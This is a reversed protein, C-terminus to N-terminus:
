NWEPILVNTLKWAMGYRRMVIQVENGFDNPVWVTVSDLSEHVVRAESLLNRRLNEVPSGSEDMPRGGAVLRSIGSPTVLSDLTEDIMKSALGAAFAAIPNKELEDGAEGVLMAGLQGKINQRLLPFDVRRAIDESDGTELADRLGNLAVYPSAVVSAGAVMLAIALVFIVSRM